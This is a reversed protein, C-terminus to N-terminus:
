TSARMGSVPKSTVIPIVAARAKAKFADQDEDHTYTVVRGYM